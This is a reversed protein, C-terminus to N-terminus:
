PLDRRDVFRHISSWIGITSGIRITQGSECTPLIPVGDEKVIPITEHLSAARKRVFVVEGATETVDRGAVIPRSNIVLFIRRQKRGHGYRSLHKKAGGDRGSRM